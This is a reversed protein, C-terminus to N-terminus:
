KKDSLRKIQLWANYLRTKPANKNTSFAEQIRNEYNVINQAREIIELQSRLKKVSRIDAVCPVHGTLSIFEISMEDKSLQVDRIVRHIVNINDIKKQESDFEDKKIM